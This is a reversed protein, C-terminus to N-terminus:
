DLVLCPFDSAGAMEKTLGESLASGGTVHGWNRELAGADILILDPQVRRAVHNINISTIQEVFDVHDIVGLTVAKPRDSPDSVIVDARQNKALQRLVETGRDDAGILWIRM